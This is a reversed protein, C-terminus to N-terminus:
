LLVKLLLSPDIRLTQHPEKSKSALFPSHITCDRIPVLRYTRLIGAKVNKSTLLRIVSVASKRNIAHCPGRLLRLM